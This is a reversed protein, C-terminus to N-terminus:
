RRFMIQCLRLPWHPKRCVPCQAWSLLTAEADAYAWLDPERLDTVDPRYLLSIPIKAGRAPGPVIQTAYTNTKRQNFTVAFVEGGRRYMGTTMMEFGPRRPLGTMWRLVLKAVSISVFQDRGAAYVDHNALLDGMRAILFVETDDKGAAPIVREAHLARLLKAQPVSYPREDTSARPTLEITAPM